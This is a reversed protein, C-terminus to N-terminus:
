PIASRCTPVYPRVYPWDFGAALRMIPRAGLASLLVAATSPPQSAPPRPRALSAAPDIAIDTRADVSLESGGVGLSTGDSRTETSVQPGCLGCTGSAPPSSGCCSCPCGGGTCGAAAATAVAVDATAAAVVLGAGSRRGAGRAMAPTSSSGPGSASGTGPSVAPSSPVVPWPPERLSSGGAALATADAARPPALVAAPPPDLGPPWRGPPRRPPRRPDPIARWVARGAQAPVPPGRSSAAPDEDDEDDEDEDDDDDDDSSPLGCGPQLPGPGPPRGALLATRGVISLAGVGM